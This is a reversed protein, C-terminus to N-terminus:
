LSDHCAPSFPSYILSNSLVRLIRVIKLYRLVAHYSHQTRVGPYELIKYWNKKSRQEAIADMKSKERCEKFGYTFVDIVDRKTIATPIDTIFQYLTDNSHQSIIKASLRLIGYVIAFLWSGGSIIPPNTFGVTGSSSSNTNINNSSSSGSAASSGFAPAVASSTKAHFSSPLSSITSITSTNSDNASFPTNGGSSTPFGGTEFLVVDVTKLVFEALFNAAFLSACWNVGIDSLDVVDLQNATFHNCIEKTHMDTYLISALLCMDNRFCTSYKHHDHHYIRLTKGLLLVVALSAHFDNELAQLVRAVLQAYGPIFADRNQIHCDAQLILRISNMDATSLTPTYASFHGSELEADIESRLSDKLNKDLNLSKIFTPQLHSKDINKLWLYKRANADLSTTWVRTADLSTPSTPSVPPFSSSSSATPSTSSPADSSGPNVRLSQSPHIPAAQRSSVSNFKGSFSTGSSSSGSSGNGNGVLSRPSAM